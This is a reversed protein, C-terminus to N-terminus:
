QLYLERRIGRRRLGEVAISGLLALIIASGIAISFTDIITMTIM